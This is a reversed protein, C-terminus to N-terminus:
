GNPQCGRSCYPLGDVKSVGAVEKTCGQRSCAETSVEEEEEEIEPIRGAPTVQVADVSAKPLGFGQPASPESPACGISKEVRHEVSHHPHGIHPSLGRAIRSAMDSAEEAARRLEALEQATRNNADTLEVLRKKTEAIAAIDKRRSVREKSLDGWAKELKQEAILARNTQAGRERSAQALRSKANSVEGRMHIILDQLGESGEQMASMEDRMQAITERAVKNERAFENSRGQLREVLAEANEARETVRELSPQKRQVCKEHALRLKNRETRLRAVEAQLSRVQTVTADSLANLRGQAAEAKRTQTHLQRRLRRITTDPPESEEM